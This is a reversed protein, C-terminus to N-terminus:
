FKFMKTQILIKLLNKMLKVLIDCIQSHWEPLQITELKNACEYEQSFFM